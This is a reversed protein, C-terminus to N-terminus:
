RGRPPSGHELFVPFYSGKRLKLIKLDVTGARTEWNRERYGSRRNIRGAAREHPGASRQGNEELEVLRNAAVGIMKNLFIPTPLRRLCFQLQMRDDTM